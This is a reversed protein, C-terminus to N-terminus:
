DWFDRFRLKVLIKECDNKLLRYKQHNIRKILGCEQMQFLIPYYLTKPLRCVRRLIELIQKPKFYPAGRSSEKLKSYVHIYVYPIEKNLKKM